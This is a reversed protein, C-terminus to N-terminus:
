KVIVTGRQTTGKNDKVVIIYMGKAWGNTSVTINNDMNMYENASYVVKGDVSAVMVNVVGEM